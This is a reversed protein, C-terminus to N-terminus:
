VATTRNSCDFPTSQINRHCICDSFRYMCKEKHINLYFNGFYEHGDYKNKTILKTTFWWEQMEVLWLLLSMNKRSKLILEPYLIPIGVFIYLKMEWVIDSRDSNSTSHVTETNRPNDNVFMIGYEYNSNSMKESRM